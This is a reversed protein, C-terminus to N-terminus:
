LEESLDRVELKFQFGEYGALMEGLQRWSLEQGDVVVVPLREYGEPDSTIRGRLIGSSPIGPGLEGDEVHQQALGRQVKQFLRGFLELPECEPDGMIKFEYGQREGSRVEFAALSVGSAFHFMDFEFTHEIGRVDRLVVPAFDVHEFDLMYREAIEGNYCRLCLERSGGPNGVSVGSSRERCKECLAEM